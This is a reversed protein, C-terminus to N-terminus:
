DGSAKEYCTILPENTSYNMLENTTISIFLHVLSVLSGFVVINNNERLSVEKLLIDNLNCTVLQLHYTTM